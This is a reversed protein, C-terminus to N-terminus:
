IILTETSLYKKGDTFIKFINHLDYQSFIKMVSNMILNFTIKVTKPLKEWCAGISQTYETNPPRVIAAGTPWRVILNLLILNLLRPKSIISVCMLYGYMYNSTHPILKINM